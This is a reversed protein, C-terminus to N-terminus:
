GEKEQMIWGVLLEAEVETFDGNVELWLEYDARTWEPHKARATGICRKAKELATLRNCAEWIYRTYGIIGEYCLAFDLQERPHKAAFMSPTIISHKDGEEAADENHKELAATIFVPYGLQMWEQSTLFEINNVLRAAVVTADSRTMTDFVTM